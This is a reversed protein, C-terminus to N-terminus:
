LYRLGERPPKGNKSKVPRYPHGVPLGINLLTGVKWDFAKGNKVRLVTYGHSALIKTRKKDRVVQDPEYHYGGDVELVTRTLPFYFDAIYFGGDRTDIVRQFYYPIGCPMRLLGDIREEAPTMREILDTVYKEQVKTLGEQVRSAEVRAIRADYGELMPRAVHKPPTIVRAVHDPSVKTRPPKPKVTSLAGAKVRSPRDCPPQVRM